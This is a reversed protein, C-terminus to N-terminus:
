SAVLNEIERVPDVRVGFRRELFSLGRAPYGLGDSPVSKGDLMGRAPELGRDAATEWTGSASRLASTDPHKGLVVRQRPEAMAAPVVRHRRAPDAGRDRERRDSVRPGALDDEEASWRLLPSRALLEHELVAQEVSEVRCEQEM